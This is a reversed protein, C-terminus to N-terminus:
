IEHRNSTGSEGIKHQKTIFFMKTDAFCHQCTMTLCVTGFKSECAEKKSPSIECLKEADLDRFKWTTQM